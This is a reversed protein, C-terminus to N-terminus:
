TPKPTFPASYSFLLFFFFFPPPPLLFADYQHTRYLTIKIATLHSISQYIVAYIRLILPSQLASFLQDSLFYIFLLHQPNNYFPYPSHPLVQTRRNQLEFEFRSQKALLSSAVINPYMFRLIYNSVFNSFKIHSNDGRPFAAPDRYVGANSFVCCMGDAISSPLHPPNRNNDIVNRALSPFCVASAKNVCM